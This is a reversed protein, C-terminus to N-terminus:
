VPRNLEEYKREAVAKQDPMYYWASKGFDEDSPYAEGPPIVTDKIKWGKHTKIRFVECGRGGVSYMAALETRKIQRLTLGHRVLSLPLVRFESVSETM